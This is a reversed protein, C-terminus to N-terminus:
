YNQPSKNLGGTRICEQQFNAHDLTKIIVYYCILTGSNVLTIRGCNTCMVKGDEAQFLVGDCGGSDGECVTMGGVIM